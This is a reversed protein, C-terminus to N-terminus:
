STRDMSAKEKPETNIQLMAQLAPTVKPGSVMEAARQIMSKKALMRVNVVENVLSISLPVIAPRFDRGQEAKVM